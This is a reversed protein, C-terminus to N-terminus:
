NCSNCGGCDGCPAPVRCTVTKAVMKCVPTKVQRQETHPVMVTYKVTKPEQVTKYSVETFTKNVQKSVMATYTVDRTRTETRYHCVRETTTRQEPKCVTVSYTYPETSNVLKCVTVQVKEEVMNPVWVRCTRTVMQPATDCGGCGSNCGDCSDNCGGCDGCSNYACRRFLLGRHHGCGSDCEDCAKLAVQYSKEEWHGRDRMVTRTEPSSVQRCVTRTGQRTEQHPVMVTYTHNVNKYEPIQVQYSVQKTQREPVCITVARTYTNREPVCRCVTITRDRTEPRCVTVDVTRTEWVTTPVMITRQVNVYAQACPAPGCSPACDGCDDACGRRHGLHASAVSTTLVVAALVLTGQWWCKTRM